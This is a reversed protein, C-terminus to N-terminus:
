LVVCWVVRFRLVGLSDFYLFGFSCDAFRGWHVCMDGLQGVVVSVLRLGRLWDRQVM